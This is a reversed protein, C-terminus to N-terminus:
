ILSSSDQWIWWSCSIWMTPLILVFSRTNWKYWTFDRFKICYIFWFYCSLFYPHGGALEASMLSSSWYGACLCWSLYICLLIMWSGYLKQQCLVRFLIIQKMVLHQSQWRVDVKSLVTSCIWFYVMGISLQNLLESLGSLHWRLLQWVLLYIRRIWWWVKVLMNVMVNPLSYALNLYVLSDVILGFGM